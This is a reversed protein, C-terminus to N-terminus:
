LIGNVDNGFVLQDLTIDLGISLRILVDFSPKRDGAELHSVWDPTLGTKEALEKQTMIKGVREAKLTEKFKNM